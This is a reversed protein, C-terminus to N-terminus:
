NASSPRWQLIASESLDIPEEPQPDNGPIVAELIATVAALRDPADLVKPLLCQLKEHSLTRLGNVKVQLLPHWGKSAFHGQIRTIIALCDNLSEVMHYETTVVFESLQNGM